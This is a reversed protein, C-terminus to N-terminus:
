TNTFPTRFVVASTAKVLEDIGEEISITTEFGLDTIKKYSVVYDRKDIDEGIDAYHFYAGTRKEILNCIEKKTCNMSDSGVNYIEGEM